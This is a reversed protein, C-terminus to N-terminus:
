PPTDEGPDFKKGQGLHQIETLAHHTARALSLLEKLSEKYEANVADKTEAATRWAKTEDRQEELRKRTVLRDTLIMLVVLIVIGSLGIDGLAVGGLLDSIM